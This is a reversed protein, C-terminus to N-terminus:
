IGQKRSSEVHLGQPRQVGKRYHGADMERKALTLEMSEAMASSPHEALVQRVQKLSLGKRLLPELNERAVKAAESKPFADIVGIYEGSAKELEGQEFYTHGKFLHVEPLLNSTPFSVQYEDWRAIANKYDGSKYLSKAAMFSFISAHSDSPFKEALFSFKRFAEAYEGNQYYITAIKLGEAPNSQFDGQAPAMAYLAMILVAACLFPRMGFVGPRVGPIREGM